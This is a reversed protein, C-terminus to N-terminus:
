FSQGLKSICGNVKTQLLPPTPMAKRDRRRRSLRSTRMMGKNSPALVPSLRNILCVDDAEEEDEWVRMNEKNQRDERRRKTATKESQDGATAPKSESATSSERLHLSAIAKSQIQRAKRRLNSLSADYVALQLLLFVGNISPYCVPEGRGCLFICM